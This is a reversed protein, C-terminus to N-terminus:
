ERNYMLEVTINNTELNKSIKNIHGLGVDTRITTYLGSLVIDGPFSITNKASFTPMLIQIKNNTIEDGFESIPLLEEGPKNYKLWSNYLVDMSMDGNVVLVNGVGTSPIKNVNNEVICFVVALGDNNAEKGFVAGYEVDPTFNYISEEKVKDSDDYTGLVKYECHTFPVTTEDAWKTKHKSYEKSTDYSYHNTFYTIKTKNLNDKYQTLDIGTINEDYSGNNIFWSIHELKLKDGDIYWYINFANKLMTFISGLTIKTKSALNDANPKNINSRQTIMIRGRSNIRNYSHLYFQTGGYLFQSHELTSNFIVGCDIKRLIAKIAEGVECFNKNKVIIDEETNYNAYILGLDLWVSFRDGWENKLFPVFYGLESPRDYYYSKEGVGIISETYAVGYITPEESINTSFVISGNKMKVPARGKYLNSYNMNDDEPISEGSYQTLKRLGVITFYTSDIFIKYDTSGIRIVNAFKNITGAYLKEISYESHDYTAKNFPDGAITKILFNNNDIKSVLKMSYINQYEIGDQYRVNAIWIEVWFDKYRSSNKDEIRFTSLVMKRGYVIYTMTTDGAEYFEKFDNNTITFPSLYKSGVSPELKIVNRPELSEAKLSVAAIHYLNNFALNYMEDSTMPDIEKTESVREYVSTLTNGLLSVFQLNENLKYEVSELKPTLKQLDFETDLNNLIKSYNDDNDLKVKITRTDLDINMDVYRFKGVALVENTQYNYITCTYITKPSNSRLYRYDEGKFILEGKIDGKFYMNETDKTKEYVLEKYNPNAEYTTRSIKDTLIFKLNKRAM